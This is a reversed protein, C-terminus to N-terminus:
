MQKPLMVVMSMRKGPVITDNEARTIVGRLPLLIMKRKLLTETLIRTMIKKEAPRRATGIKAEKEEQLSQRACACTAKLAQRALNREHKAAARAVDGLNTHVSNLADSARSSIAPPAGGDGAPGSQSGASLPTAGSSTREEDEDQPPTRPPTTPVGGNGRRESDGGIAM